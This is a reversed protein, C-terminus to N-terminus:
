FSRTTESFSHQGGGQACVVFWLGCADRSACAHKTVLEASVACARKLFGTNVVVKCVFWLGCADRSACAHKTVPEAFVACARKWFRTDM